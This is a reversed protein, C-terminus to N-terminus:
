LGRHGPYTVGGVYVGLLGGSGRSFQRSSNCRSRLWALGVLMEVPFYCVDIREGQRRRCCYTCITPPHAPPWHPPLKAERRSANSFVSGAERGEPREGASGEG